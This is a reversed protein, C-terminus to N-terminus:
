FIGTEEERERLAYGSERRSGNRADSNHKAYNDIAESEARDFFDARGRIATAERSPVFGRLWSAVFTEPMFRYFGFMWCGADLM